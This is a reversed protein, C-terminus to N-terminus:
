NEWWKRTHRPPYSLAFDARELSLNPNFYPDSRLVDGWREYMLRSEELFGPRGSGVDDGRSVSEHHYLEAFPTWVNRFGRASIRLCLDVDNYAVALAEDFGGAEDFVRKRVVLCAATVASVTQM